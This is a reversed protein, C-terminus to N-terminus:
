RMVQALLRKLITEHSREASGIGRIVQRISNFENNKPLDDILKQYEQQGKQEDRILMALRRKYQNLSTIM